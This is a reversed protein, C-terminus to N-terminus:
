DEVTVRGRGDGINELSVLTELLSLNLPMRKTLSSFRVMISGRVGCGRIKTSYRGSICNLATFIGTTNKELPLYNENRYDVEDSSGSSVAGGISVADLVSYLKSM